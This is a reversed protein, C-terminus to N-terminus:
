LEKKMKDLTINVRGLSICAYMNMQRDTYTHTDM